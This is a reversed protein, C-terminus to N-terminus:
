LLIYFGKGFFSLRVSARRVSLELGRTALRALGNQFFYLFRTPRTDFFGLGPEGCCSVDIINKFAEGKWQMIIERSKNQCWTTPRLITGLFLMPFRYNGTNKPPTVRYSLKFRNKPSVGNHYQIVRIATTRVLQKQPRYSMCLRLNHTWNNQTIDIVDIQFWEVM